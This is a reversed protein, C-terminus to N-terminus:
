GAKRAARHSAIAREYVSEVQEAVQRWDYRSTALERGRGGLERARAQDALLGGITGALDGAGDPDVALGADPGIIEELGSGAAYIVPLGCSMAEMAALGYRTSPAMSVVASATQLLRPVAEHKVGGTRHFRDRVGWQLALATLRDEESHARIVTTPPGGIAVLEVDPLDRLASVVRDVQKRGALAGVYVIRARSVGDAPRDGATFQATEVGGQILTLREADIGRKELQARESPRTVIVHDVRDVLDAETPARDPSSGNEGGNTGLHFSQVVPVHAAEGALLAAAGSRWRHGHVVDHRSDSWDRLLRRSFPAVARSREAEDAPRAPGATVQHVRAGGPLESHPPLQWASRRVYIDVEHGRRVLSTALGALYVNQGRTEGTELVALPNAHEAVLAIKM